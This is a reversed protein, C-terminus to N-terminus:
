LDLAKVLQKILSVVVPPALLSVVEEGEDDKVMWSKETTIVEKSDTDYKYVYEPTIEYNDVLEETRKVPVSNRLLIKPIGHLSFVKDILEDDKKLRGRIADIGKDDGEKLIMRANECEKNDCMLYFEKKAEDYGVKETTFLKLNRPAQCKPCVVRYKMREDIVSEPIDIAIFVDPDSRFDVLDRFFLSYSVQDLERPFGDIFLTKKGQKEIERKVLTLTFETPLLTTTDRGMLADLAKEISIYGRYHKELYEMIEESEAGGEKMAKHTARVVDGVSIHAIKDKGFIEVMLKTYTGKGANKKALLYAIFGSENLYNKLKEIEKGAKAEFYEKREAVDSLNFKKDVGNVKTKFLPFEKEYKM